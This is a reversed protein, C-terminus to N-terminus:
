EIFLIARVNNSSGFYELTLADVTYDIWASLSRLHRIVWTKEEIDEKTYSPEDYEVPEKAGFGLRKAFETTYDFIIEEEKKADLDAELKDALTELENCNFYTFDYGYDRNDIAIKLEQSLDDPLGKNKITNDIWAHSSFINDRLTFLSICHFYEKVLKDGDSTEIVSKKLEKDFESREDFVKTNANKYFCLANWNGTNKDKYEIGIHLYASM